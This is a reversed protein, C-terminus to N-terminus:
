TDESDSLERLFTFTYIGTKHGDSWMLQIAYRGVRQIGVVHLKEWYEESPIVRFPDNEQRLADCRACPCRERLLRYTHESRHGDKWQIALSHPLRKIETPQYEQMQFDPPTDIQLVNSVRKM